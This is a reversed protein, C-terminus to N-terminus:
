QLSFYASPVAQPLPAGTTENTILTLIPFSFFFITCYLGKELMLELEIGFLWGFQLPRELLLGGAFDYGSALAPCSVLPEM